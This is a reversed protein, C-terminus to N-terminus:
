NFATKNQAFDMNMFNIINEDKRKFWHAYTNHLTAVTDGLRKAIDYDTFGASMNNILYSAHSHRLDHIRITKVESIKLYNVFTRRLTEHALPRDMGFLFSDNSCGYFNSCYEKYQKLQKVLVTPMTITRYSNNTKPTTYPPNNLRDRDGSTKEIRITNDSFNIDKWQLALCEGKRLGMYFLIMFLSKYMIDDVFSIFQNFEYPEWIQMEKPKENPRKSREVKRIPNNTIYDKRFAYELCASLAYYLKEVYRKSYTKDWEDIVDQIMLKSIKHVDIDGFKYVWKNIASERKIYSSKKIHTKAYNLYERVLKSFPIYDIDNELLLDKRKKREEDIADTKRDFGRKKYWIKEGNISVYGHYYWKGSKEDRKVSMDDGM